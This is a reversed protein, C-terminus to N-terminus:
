LKKLNYINWLLGATALLSLITGFAILAMSVETHIFLFVTGVILPARAFDGLKGFFKGRRDLKEMARIKRQMRDLEKEYEEPTM